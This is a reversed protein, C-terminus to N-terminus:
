QKALVLAARYAAAADRGGELWYGSLARAAKLPDINKRQWWEAENGTHLSFPFGDHLDDRLPVCQWDPVRKGLMNDSKLGGGAARELRVHHAVINNQAGCVLCPLSRLWKLYAQSRDSSHADASRNFATGPIAIRSGM